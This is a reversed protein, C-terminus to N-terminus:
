FKLTRVLRLSLASTAEDTGAQSARAQSVSVTQQSRQSSTGAPKPKSAAPRGQSATATARAAEKAKESYPMAIDAIMGVMWDKNRSKYGKLALAECAGELQPRLCKKLAAELDARKNPYTGGLLDRVLKRANETNPPPM